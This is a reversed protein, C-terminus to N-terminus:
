RQFDIRRLQEMRIDFAGLDNEGAFGLISSGSAVADEIVKGDLLSIRISARDEYDRVVELAKIRDFAVNQGSLLHLSDNWERIQRFNHAFVATTTGNKATILYAAPQDAQQNRGATPRDALGGPPPKSADSDTAPTVSASMPPKGAQHERSGLVGYQYLGVILGTVATLLAAGGTLVGPLTTWFGQASTKKAM